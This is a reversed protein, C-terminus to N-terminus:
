SCMVLLSMHMPLVVLSKVIHSSSSTEVIPCASLYLKMELLLELISRPHGMGLGFLACRCSKWNPLVWFHLESSCWDKLWIGPNWWLWALLKFTVECFGKITLQLRGNHWVDHAYETIGCHLWMQLLPYVIFQTGTSWIYVDGIILLLYIAM